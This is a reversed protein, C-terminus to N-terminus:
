PGNTEYVRRYQISISYWISHIGNVGSQVGLVTRRTGDKYRPVFMRILHRSKPIYRAGQDVVTFHHDHGNPTRQSHHKILYGKRQYAVKYANVRVM